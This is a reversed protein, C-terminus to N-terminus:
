KKISLKRTLLSLRENNLTNDGLKMKVYVAIVLLANSTHLFPLKKQARFYSSPSLVM